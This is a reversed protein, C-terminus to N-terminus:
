KKLPKFYESPEDNLIKKAEKVVQNLEMLMQPTFHIEQQPPICVDLHPKLGNEAAYKYVLIEVPKELLTATLRVHESLGGVYEVNWQYPNATKGQQQRREELKAEKKLRESTLQKSSQYYIARLQDTTMETM